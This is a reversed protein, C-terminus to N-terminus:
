EPLIALHRRWCERGAKMVSAPCLVMLKPIADGLLYMVLLLIKTNMKFGNLQKDRCIYALHTFSGYFNQNKVSEIEQSLVINILEIM